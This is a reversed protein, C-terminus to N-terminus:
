KKRATKKHDVKFLGFISKGADKDDPKAAELSASTQETTAPAAAKPMTTQTPAERTFISTLTTGNIRNYLQTAEEDSVLVPVRARVIGQYPNYWFAAVTRDVAVRIQPHELDAEEPGAVELWPRDPSLLRNMPPSGKFWTPDITLPWGRGNRDVEEMAGRVKAERLLRQVDARTVAIVEDEQRHARDHLWAGALLAMILAAAITNLIMRM